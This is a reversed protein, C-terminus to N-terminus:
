DAREALHALCLDPEVFSELSMDMGPWGSRELLGQMLGLHMSCVVEPHERALERFPCEHLELRFQHEGSDLSPGFGLQDLAASLSEVAQGGSQAPVTSVPLARGWDAGIQLAKIRRASASRGLRQALLASLVLYPTRRVAAPESSGSVSFVLRRRGATSRRAPVASVLGARELVGLHFRITTVHLGLRAALEHADVAAPGPGAAAQELLSIIRRRVPSAMAAHTSAAQTRTAGTSAADTGAVSGTM